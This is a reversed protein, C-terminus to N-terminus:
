TQRRQRERYMASSARSACRSQKRGPLPPCYLSERGRPGIRFYERCGPARCRQMRVGAVLDLYHMLHVATLLSPCSWGLARRGQEDAVFLPRAHRLQQSLYREGTSGTLVTLGQRWMSIPERTALLDVGTVENRPDFVVRLGYRRRVDEHTFTSEDRLYHVSRSFGTRVFDTSPRRFRLERPLILQDTRLHYDSPRPPPLGLEKSWTAAQRIMQQELLRKGETTPDIRRLRRDEDIVTDPAVRAIHGVKRDPLLPESFEERMWGLLGHRDAFFQVALRFTKTARVMPDLDQAMDALKSFLEHPAPGGPARLAGAPRYFRFPDSREWRADPVVEVFDPGLTDSVLRHKSAKWLSASPGPRTAMDTM